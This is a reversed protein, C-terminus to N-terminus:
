DGRYGMRRSIELAAAKVSGAIEKVKDRPIMAVSGSTSVAGIVQNRYDRIPAGVCRVGKEYEEDDVSWGRTRTKGIETVLRDIAAFTKPTYKTLGRQAFTEKIETDARGSLMAKGLATCHLPARKGIISYKRLSNHTEMKDIYVVENDQLMALFVTNNVRKALERLLPQAETKLELNNLHLSSLEIFEMGLRYTGEATKEIYGRQRLSALLRHVTSKHLDLRQGIDTLGLGCQERSLLELIDFARELVQVKMCESSVPKAATACDALRLSRASTAPGALGRRGAPIRALIFATRVADKRLSETDATAM